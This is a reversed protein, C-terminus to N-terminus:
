GNASKSFFGSKNAYAVIIEVLLPLIADLLWGPLEGGLIAKAQAVVESKKGAGDGPREVAHCLSALLFLVARVLEFTSKM